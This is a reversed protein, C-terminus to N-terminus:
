NRNHNGLQREILYEKFEKKQLPGVSVGLGNCMLIHMGHVSEIKTKNIIFGRRVKMFEQRDCLSASMDKLSMYVSIQADNEKYIKTYNLNSEVAIVDRFYIKIQHNGHQKSKVFFFGDNSAVERAVEEPFFKNLVEKFKNFPYPKFFLYDADEVWAKEAYQHYGTTFVVKRAKNRVRKLLEFGDMKPMQIDLFLVDFIVDNNMIESCALTSDTYTKAVNFLPLDALYDKIGDIAYQEDDVIVCKYM